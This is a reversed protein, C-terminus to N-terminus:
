SNLFFCTGMDSVAIVIGAIAPGVIRSVNMITSNLSVANTIDEPGVMEAAFAQRAPMDFATATGLLFSLLYVMWLEVVHTVTLVGILAAFTGEVLQTAILLNRKSMRDALV